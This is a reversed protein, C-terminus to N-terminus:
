KSWRAPQRSRRSGPPGAISSGAPALGALPAFRARGMLGRRSSPPLFHSPTIAVLLTAMRDTTIALEQLSGLGTDASAALSARLLTTYEAAVAEMNPDPRVTLKEIPIEDTGIIMLVETEPVRGAVANLADSFAGVTM